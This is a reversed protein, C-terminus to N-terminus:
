PTTDKTPSQGFVSTLYVSQIFDDPKMGPKLRYTKGPQGEVALGPNWFDVRGTTPTPATTERKETLLPRDAGYRDPAPKPSKRSFFM